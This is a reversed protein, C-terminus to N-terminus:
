GLRTHLRQFVRLIRFVEHIMVLWGVVDGDLLKLDSLLATLTSCIDKVINNLYLFLCFLSYLILTRLLSFFDLDLM